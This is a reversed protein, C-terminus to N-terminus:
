PRREGVVVRPDGGHLLGQAGRLRREMAAPFFGRGLVPVDSALDVEADDDAARRGHQVIRGALGAEGVAGRLREELDPHGEALGERGALGDLKRHFKLGLRIHGHAGRVDRRHRDM